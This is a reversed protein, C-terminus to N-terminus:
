VAKYFASLKNNAYIKWFSEMREFQASDTASNVLSFDTGLDRFCQQSEPTEPSSIMWLTCSESKDVGNSYRDLNARYLPFNYDRMFFLKVFSDATMYIHDDVLMDQDDMKSALYSSAEYTQRIRDPHFNEKTLYSANDSLGNILIFGTLLIFAGFFLRYGTKSTASEDKSSGMSEKWLSVLAFSSLVALPYSAYNAARGSPLDIRALDPFMSVAALASAWGFLLILSFKERSKRFSLAVFIIGLIGWVIRMEGLTSRFQSFTLGEHGSKSVDGVVTTVAKNTLYTPTYVALVMFAAFIAFAAIQPSFVTKPMKRATALFEKPNAIISIALFALIAILFLFGTLHHIYFVGMSFVLAFLLSERKLDELFRVYFYLALPVIFNAILNGTVGGAVFKAQPPDIAFLPGIFLLSLIAINLRQPHRRFLELALVFLALLSMTNTLLLALIPFYSIFDLGSVLAISSYFLQEGIIFDSIPEPEGIRSSGDETVIDRKSYEPLRHTTAIVKSWYLHHGLDTTGPLVANRLYYGKTLLTVALLLIVLLGQKRSFGLERPKASKGANRKREILFAIFAIAILSFAISARTLAIGFRGLILMLFDTLLISLGSGLVIREFLSFADKRFFAGLVFYGPVFMVLLLTLYFAFQQSIFQLM